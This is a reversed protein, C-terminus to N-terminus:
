LDLTRKLLQLKHQNFMKMSIRKMKKNKKNIKPRKRKLKFFIKRSNKKKHNIKKTFQNPLEKNNKIKDKGIM